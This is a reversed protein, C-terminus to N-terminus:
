FTVSGPHPRFLEGNTLDRWHVGQQREQHNVNGRHANLSM